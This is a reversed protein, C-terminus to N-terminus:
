DILYKLSILSKVDIGENPPFIKANSYHLFHYSLDFQQQKGFLIGFGLLDQFAFRAGLDRHGLKDRSMASLGVSVELYPNLNTDISNQQQLRFVPAFALIAIDPYQKADTSNDTQWYALSADWYGGLTLKKSIAWQKDWYYQWALRGGILNDPEGYGASLSISRQAYLWTGPSFFLVFLILM